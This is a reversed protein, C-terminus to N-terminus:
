RRRLMGIAGLGLLLMTAPEPIQGVLVIDDVFLAGTGYYTSNVGVTIQEVNDLNMGAVMNAAFPIEWVIGNPWGTGSPTVDGPYSAGMVKQGWCDYFTLFVDGGSGGLNGWPQTSNNVPVAFTMKIAYYGPYTLNVGHVNHVAGELAFKTQAFYPSNQNNQILMSQGNLVNELTESTINSNVNPVWAARLADSDAYDEFDDVVTEFTTGAMCICTLVAMLIVCTRM